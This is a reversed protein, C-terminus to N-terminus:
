PYLNYYQEYMTVFWTELFQEHGRGWSTTVIHIHMSLFAHRDAGYVIHLVTWNLTVFQCNLHYVCSHSIIISFQFLMIAPGWIRLCLINDYYVFGCTNDPINVGLLNGFKRNTKKKYQILYFYKKPRVWLYTCSRCFTSREHSGIQTVHM